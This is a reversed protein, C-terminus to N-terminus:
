REEGFGNEFLSSLADAAEEEDEGREELVPKPFLALRQGRQEWGRPRVVM